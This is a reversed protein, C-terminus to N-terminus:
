AYQNDYIENYVSYIIETGFGRNYLKRMVKAKDYPGKEIPFYRLLFKKAASLEDYNEIDVSPELGRKEMKYYIYRKGYKAEKMFRALVQSALREDNVYNLAILKEIVEDIVDNDYGKRKLKNALELKSLFRPELYRLAQEYAAMIKEDM